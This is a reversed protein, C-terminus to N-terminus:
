APMVGILNLPNWRTTTEARSEDPRGSLCGRNPCLQVPTTLRFAEGHGFNLQLAVPVEDFSSAVQNAVEFHVEVVVGDHRYCERM